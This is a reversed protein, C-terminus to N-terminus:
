QVIFFNNQRNSVVINVAAVTEKHACSVMVILIASLVVRSAMAPAVSVVASPFLKTALSFPSIMRWLLTSDQVTLPMPYAVFVMSRWLLARRIRNSACDAFMCCTITVALLCTCFRFAAGTAILVMLAVVIWSVFAVVM